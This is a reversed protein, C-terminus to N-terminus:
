QRYNSINVERKRLWSGLGHGEARAHLDNWIKEHEEETNAQAMLLPVNHLFHLLKFADDHQKEVCYTRAEILVYYILYNLKRKSDM